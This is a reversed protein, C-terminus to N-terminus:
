SIYPIANMPSYQMAVRHSQALVSKMHEHMQRWALYIHKKGPLTDLMGAEIAHVIRSPEGEAPVYYLWRRTAFKASDLQLVNEAIPDSGRFSYFLWGDLKEQRLAHQLADIHTQDMAAFDETLNYPNHNNNKCRSRVCVSWLCSFSPM